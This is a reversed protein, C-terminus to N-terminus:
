SGTRIKLFMNMNVVRCGIQECYVVIRCLIGLFINDNLIRRYTNEFHLSKEVFDVNVNIYMM